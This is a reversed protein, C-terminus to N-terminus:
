EDCYEKLNTNSSMDNLLQIDPIFRLSGNGDIKVFGSKYKEILEVVKKNDGTDNFAFTIPRGNSLALLYRLIYEELGIEFYRCSIAWNLVHVGQENDTYTITSCIDLNEGNDKYLEFFLSKCGEYNGKKEAFRFQNSKKYLRTAEVHNVDDSVKVSLQPLYNKEREQQLVKYLRKRNRSKLSLEFRDFVCCAVLMTLLEDHSEWDPM